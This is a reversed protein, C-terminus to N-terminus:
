AATCTLTPPSNSGTWSGIFGFTTSAAPALPGNWSENRATVTTGATSTLAGWSQSIRQGNAFTMAVTWGNIRAAGATVKVEGQFGGTWQGMSTYSASCGGTTPPPTTPPPTTPPPTTPPTTVTGGWGASSDLWAARRSLWSRM